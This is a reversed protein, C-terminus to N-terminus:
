SISPMFRQSVSFPRSARRGEEAAIQKIVLDAYFVLEETSLPTTDEGPLSSVDWMDPEPHTILLLNGDIEMIRKTMM